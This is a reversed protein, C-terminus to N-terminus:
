RRRAFDRASTVDRVRSPPLTPGQKPPLSLWVMVIPLLLVRQRSLIGFNGIGSFAWVFGLTYAATFAVYANTRVMSFGRRIGASSRVALLILFVGEAAQILAQPNGAEWPFPRLVVSVIAWPLDLPSTVPTPDFESGGQTALESRTRFEASLAQSTLDDLGLFTASRTLMLWVLPVLVILGLVKGFAGDSDRRGPKLIQAVLMSGFLLFAIHPRVVMTGAAGLLLLPIGQGPRQFFRAAGCATVGLWLLLWSEKGIGSPWYLMSPLAFILLAYRRHNGDPVALLFARYLLYAGWFALSGFVFFAALPSPGTVVYIASTIVEMARTGSASRSGFSAFHGSRWWMSEFAAVMNYRQADANGGYVVFAVYYRGLTGLLKLVFGWFFVTRIWLDPEIAAARGLLVLNLFVVFPVVIMAGWLNYSWNDVAWTFAVAVVAGLTSGGALWAIRGGPSWTM